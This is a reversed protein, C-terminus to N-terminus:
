QLVNIMAVCSSQLLGGASAYESIMQLMSVECRIIGPDPLQDPSVNRLVLINCCLIM